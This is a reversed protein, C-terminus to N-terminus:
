FDRPPAVPRVSRLRGTPQPRALTIPTSWQHTALNGALDRADLRVYFQDPMHRQLRWTYVGVNELGAAITSWPGTPSVSYFLGIPRPELNRDEVSWRLLLHDALNGQGLQVSNIEARPAQLDVAVILEPEDGSRPPTAGVGNAGDVLIRFGYVGEGPVTVRVPSRNDPDIGYSQWTQGDDHTGWLEVKSVGWPGVSQLDYEVDFTRSNVMRDSLNATPTPRPPPAWDSNSIPATQKSPNRHSGDGILQTPVRNPGDPSRAMTYPNRLPPTERLPSPQLPPISTSNTLSNSPRPLRNNAPWDRSPLRAVAQFPDAKTTRFPQRASKKPAVSDAAMPMRLAPGAVMVETAAQARHGAKDAISARIEVVKADFPVAWNARGMLRNPESLDPPGLQLASWTGGAMRAEVVLSEPRLHADRSEYQVVISGSDGLTGSLKLEPQGTDVVIRMQPRIAANPWPKGQQDLHRLAFWYEGDEAAHYSFGRVNPTAEQLTEWGTAGDRSVLLQVKKIRSLSKDQQNAQYPILFLRKQWYAPALTGTPVAAFAPTGLGFSALLVLCLRLVSPRVVTLTPVTAM